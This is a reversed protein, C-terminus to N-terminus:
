QFGAKRTAEGKAELACAFVDSLAFFYTEGKATRAQLQGGTESISTVRAVTLGVGGSALHLTLHRGQPIERAGDKEQADCLALVESLQEKTM